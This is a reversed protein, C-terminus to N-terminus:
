FGVHDANSLRREFCVQAMSVALASRLGASRASAPTASIASITSIAALVSRVTIPITIIAVLISVFVATLEV